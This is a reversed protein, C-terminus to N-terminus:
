GLRRPAIRKIGRLRIRIHRNTSASLEQVGGPKENEDVVSGAPAGAAFDQEPVRDWLRQM